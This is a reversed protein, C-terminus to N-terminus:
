PFILQTPKKAVHDESTMGPGDKEGADKKPVYEPANNESANKPYDEPVDRAPANQPAHKEPADSEPAYGEPAVKMPAYGEPVIKMPADSQPAHKESADSQPAYGKPTVKMPADSQSAPADTEPAHKEPTDSELADSQPAHKEPADSEPAHKEPTDSEPADSQSAHKEPVDSESAYGEPAVKMPADKEPAYGEPAVKMPTDNEPTQEQPTESESPESQPVNSVPANQPADEPVNKHPIIKMDGMEEAAKPEERAATEIPEQPVGAMGESPVTKETGENIIQTKMVQPWDEVTKDGTYEIEQSVEKQFNTMTSGEADTKVTKKPPDNEADEKHTSFLTKLINILKSTLFTMENKDPITEPEKYTPPKDDKGVFPNGVFINVANNKTIYDATTIPRRWVTQQTTDEDVYPQFGISYHNSNGFLLLYNAGLLLINEKSLANFIM